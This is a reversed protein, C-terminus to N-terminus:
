KAGLECGCNPCQAASIPALQNCKPCPAVNPNSAHTIPGKKKMSIVAVIGAAFLGLVVLVLVGILLIAM